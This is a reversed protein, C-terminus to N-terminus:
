EKKIPLCQMTTRGPVIGGEGGYSEGNIKRCVFVGPM